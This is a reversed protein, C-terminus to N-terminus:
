RGSFEAASFAFLFFWASFARFLLAWPALGLFLMPPFLCQLPSLHNYAPEQVRRPRQSSQPIRLTKLTNPPVLQLRDLLDSQNISKNFHILYPKQLIDSLSFNMDVIQGNKKM